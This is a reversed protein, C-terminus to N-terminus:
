REQPSMEDEDSKYGTVGVTMCHHTIICSPGFFGSQKQSNIAKRRNLKLFKDLFFTYFKYTLAHIFLGEKIQM